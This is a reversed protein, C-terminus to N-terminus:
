DIGSANEEKGSNAASIRKNSGSVSHPGGGRGDSDGENASMGEGYLPSDRRRFPARKKKGIGKEGGKRKASAGKGWEPLAPRNNKGRGVGM